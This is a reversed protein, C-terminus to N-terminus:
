DNSATLPEITLADVEIQEVSAAQNELPPPDISTLVLAEATLPEISSPLDNPALASAPRRVRRVVLQAAPAASELAPVRQNVTAAPPEVITPRAPAATQITPAPTREAIVLAIVFGAAAALGATAWIFRRPAPRDSERVRAMVSHHLARSPERAIMEAAATDIVRDLDQETM